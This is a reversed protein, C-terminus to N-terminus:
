PVRDLMIAATTKVPFEVAEILLHAPEPESIISIPIQEILDKPMLRVGTRGCAKRIEEDEFHHTVLVSDDYLELEDIIEFGNRSATGLEYDFLYFYDRTQDRKEFWKMFDAESHFHRTTLRTSLAAVRTDWRDHAPANDDVVVMETEDTLELLTPFWDPTVARRLTVLVQTGESPKSSLQIGGGWSELVEKSYNLGLGNGNRKGFTADPQFLKPMIDPAIGRGNDAVEVTVTKDDARLALRIVGNAKDMAEVSNRILNSLVRRFDSPHIEGFLSFSSKSPAFEISLNKKSGFQNRKASVVRQIISELHESTVETRGGKGAWLRSHDLLGYAIDELQLINGMVFVREDESLKTLKKFFDSLQSLPERFDHVTHRATKAFRENQKMESLGDLYPKLFFRRCAFLWLFWFILIFTLSPLLTKLMITSLSGRYFEYRDPLSVFIFGHLKEGILLPTMYLSHKTTEQFQLIPQSDKTKKFQAIAAALEPPLQCEGQVQGPGEALVCAGSDNALVMQYESEGMQRAIKSVRDSISDYLRGSMDESMATRYFGFFHALQERSIEARAQEKNLFSYAFLLAASSLGLLIILLSGGIFIKILGTQSVQFRDKM